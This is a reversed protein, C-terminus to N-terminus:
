RPSDLAAPRPYCIYSTMVACFMTKIDDDIAPKFHNDTILFAPIGRFHGNREASDDLTHVDGYMTYLGM